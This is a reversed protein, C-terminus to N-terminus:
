LDERKRKKEPDQAYQGWIEYCHRGKIQESKRGVLQEMHANLKVVRMERDVYSLYYPSNNLMAKHETLTSDLTDQLEKEEICDRIVSMLRTITGKEDLLPSSSIQLLKESGDALTHSHRVVFPLGTAFVQRHVCQQEPVDKGACPFPSHHLIEYCKRGLITDSTTGCLDCFTRNAFVITYDPNIILVSDTLHDLIAYQDQPSM